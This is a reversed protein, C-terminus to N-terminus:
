EIEKLNLKNNDEWRHSPRGLPRRGEAGGVALCLGIHLQERMRVHGGVEDEQDSYHQKTLIVSCSAGGLV